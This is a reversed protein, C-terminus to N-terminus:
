RPSGHSCKQFRQKQANVRVNEEEFRLMTEHQQARPPSQCVAHRSCLSGATSHSWACGDQGASRSSTNGCRVTRDSHLTIPGSRCWCLLSKASLPCVAPAVSHSSPPHIQQEVHEKSKGFFHTCCVLLIAWGLRVARRLHEARRLQVVPLALM